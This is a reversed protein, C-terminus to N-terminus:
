PQYRELEKFDVIEVLTPHLPNIVNFKSRFVIIITKGGIVDNQDSYKMFDVTVSWLGKSYQRGIMPRSYKEKKLEQIVHSVKIVDIDDGKYEVDYMENIIVDPTKTWQSYEFCAVGIFVIACYAAIKFSRKLIKKDVIKYM